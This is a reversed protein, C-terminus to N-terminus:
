LLRKGLGTGSHDPRIFLRTVEGPMAAVFGAIGKEGEAVVVHEVALLRDYYAATRYGMWGEIVAAPYHDRALATVSAQTLDFLAAGNGFIARRLRM